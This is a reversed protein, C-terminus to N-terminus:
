ETDTENMLKYSSKIKATKGLMVSASCYKEESLKIAQEVAKKSLEEGWLLYEVDIETYVMPYDEARKARVKIKFNDIPQRKKVLISVVDYGTCGALGLLLLEMPSINEKNEKSGMQIENGLDNSGLFTLGDKWEAVIEHMIM